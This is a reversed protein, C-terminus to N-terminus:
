SESALSRGTSSSHSIIVTHLIRGYHNVALSFIENDALGAVAYCGAKISLGVFREAKVIEMGSQGIKHSHDEWSVHIDYSCTYYVIVISTDTTIKRVFKRM